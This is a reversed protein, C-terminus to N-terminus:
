PKLEVTVKRKDKPLVFARYVGWGFPRAEPPPQPILVELVHSTSSKRHGILRPHASITQDRWVVVLREKSFDIPKESLLPDENKPAPHKKSPRKKPIRKQFASLAKRDSIIEYGSPPGNGLPGEQTSVWGSFQKLEEATVNMSFIGMLALVLYFRNM